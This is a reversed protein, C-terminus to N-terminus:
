IALENTVGQRTLMQQLMRPQRTRQRRNGNGHGRPYLLLQPPNTSLLILPLSRQYTPSLILLRHIKQPQPLPLKPM